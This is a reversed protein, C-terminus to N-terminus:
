NVYVRSFTRFKADGKREPIPRFYVSTVFILVTLARLVRKAYSGYLSCFIIDVNGCM